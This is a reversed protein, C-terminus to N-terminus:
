RTIRFDPDIIRKAARVSFDLAHPNIDVLALTCDEFAPFTLIDRILARTFGFSGAGIMVIKRAM